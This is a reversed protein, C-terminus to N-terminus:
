FHQAIFLRLKRGCLRLPQCQFVAGLVAFPAPQNEGDHTKREIQATIQWIKVAAKRSKARTYFVDDGGRTHGNHTRSFQGVERPYWCSRIGREFNPARDAM